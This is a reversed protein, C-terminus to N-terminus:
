LYRDGRDPLVVVITGEDLQSALQLTAFVAAGASPGVLIGEKRALEFRMKLADETSVRLIRDVVSQEYIGNDRLNGLYRLGEIGHLEDDPQVCIVQIESNHEKLRKGAGFITGGTGFAAVFHTVKPVESVIEAGTTLYHALFNSPNEYQNAFFYRDPDSRYLREAELHALLSGELPDTFHLRAGFHEIIERKRPSINQPVFLELEYGKYAAIMAYAIGTNGSTSDLIVKGKRLRGSREADEIIQLATRDKISGGPNLFEVKAYITVGRKLNGIRKLELVHTKGIMETIDM